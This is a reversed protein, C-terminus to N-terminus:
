QHGCHVEGPAASVPSAEPRRRPTAPSSGAAKRREAAACRHLSRPTSCPTLPSASASRPCMPVVQDKGNGPLTVASRSRALFSLTPTMLRDVISSEWPSLQLSRDSLPPPKASKWTRAAGARTSSGETQGRRWGQTDVEARVVIVAWCGHFRSHPLPSPCLAGSHKGLNCFKLAPCSWLPSVGPGVRMGELVKEVLPKPRPSPWPRPQTRSAARNSPPGRPWSLSPSSHPPRKSRSPSNWLTASSKSLRKNIISDVHKPLNVASMSCRSGGPPSFVRANSGLALPSPLPGPRPGPLWPRGIPGEM